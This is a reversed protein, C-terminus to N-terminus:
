CPDCCARLAASPPKVSTAASTATSSTGRRGRRHTSCGGSRRVASSSCHMWARRGDLGQGKSFGRTNRMQLPAHTSTFPRGGGRGHASVTHLRRDLSGHQLCVKSPRWASRSRLLLQDVISAHILFPTRFGRTKLMTCKTSCAISACCAAASAEPRRRGARGLMAGTVARAVKAGAIPRALM